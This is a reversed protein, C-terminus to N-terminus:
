EKYDGDVKRIDGTDIRVVCSILQMKIIFRIPEVYYFHCDNKFIQSLLDNLLKFM